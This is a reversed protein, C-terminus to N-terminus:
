RLIVNFFHLAGGVIGEGAGERAGECTHFVTQLTWPPEVAGLAGTVGHGASRAGKVGQLPLVLQAVASLAVRASGACLHPESGRVLVAHLPVDVVGSVM